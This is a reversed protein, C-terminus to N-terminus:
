RGIARRRVVAVCPPRYRDATLEDVLEDFGPDGYSAFRVPLNEDGVGQEYLEQSATLAFRTYLGGWGTSGRIELWSHGDLEHVHSGSAKLFESEVLAYEIDALSIVRSETRYSRLEKNFIQYLDEAPIELQQIERNHEEM